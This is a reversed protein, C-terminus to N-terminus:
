RRQPAERTQCAAAGELSSDVMFVGWSWGPSFPSSYFVVLQLAAQFDCLAGNPSELPGESGGMDHVFSYVKGWISCM